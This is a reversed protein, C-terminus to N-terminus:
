ASVGLYIEEASLRFAFDAADPAAGEALPWDDATALIDFLERALARYTIGNMKMLPRIDRLHTLSVDHEDSFVQTDEGDALHKVIFDDMGLEEMLAFGVVDCFLEDLGRFWVVGNNMYYGFWLSMRHLLRHSLEHAIYFFLEGNNALKNKMYSYSYKLNMRTGGFDDKYTDVITTKRLIALYLTTFEKHSSFFDPFMDRMVLLVSLEFCMLDAKSAYGYVGPAGFKRWRSLWKTIPKAKTLMLHSRAEPLLQAFIRSKAPIKGGTDVFPRLFVAEPLVNEWVLDQAMFSKEDDTLWPEWIRLIEGSNTIASRNRLFILGVLARALSRASVSTGAMPALCDAGGARCVVARRGSVSFYGAQGALPWVLMLALAAIITKRIVPM